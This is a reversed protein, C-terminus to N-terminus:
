PIHANPVAKGECFNVLDSGSVVCETSIRNQGLTCDAYFSRDDLVCFPRQFFDYLEFPPLMVPFSDLVFLGIGSQTNTWDLETM